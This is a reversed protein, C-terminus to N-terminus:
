KKLPIAPIAPFRLKPVENNNKLNEAEEKTLYIEIDDIDIRNVGIFDDISIGVLLGGEDLMIYEVGLRKAIKFIQLYDNNKKDVAGILGYREDETMHGYHVMWNSALNVDSFIYLSPRGGFDKTDVFPISCNNNTDYKERSLAIFLVPQNYVSRILKEYPKKWNGHKAKEKDLQEKYKELEKAIRNGLM